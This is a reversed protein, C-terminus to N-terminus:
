STLKRIVERYEATLPSEDGLLNLVKLICRRGLDDEFTRDLQMIHHFLELAPRYDKQTVFWAALMAVAPFEQMNAEVFAKFEDISQIAVAMQSFELEHMLISCRPKLRINEPLSQLLRLAEEIRGESQMLTAITLPFKYYGPNDLAAKGLKQYATEQQGQQYLTLAERIIQDNESAVYQDLMFRLDQENQFGFLTEVVSGDVFLKLTPVSTIAYQRALKRQEDVDVNALLFTGNYTEILKELVPYLRFSPGAKRSWYHALVPGLSSNNLVLQQFNESSADFIFDNVSFPRDPM